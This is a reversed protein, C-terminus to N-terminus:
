IGNEANQSPAGQLQRHIFEEIDELRFRLIPGLKIVPIRPHRRTAHDRVWRESVGLRQAVDKATLLHQEPFVPLFPHKRSSHDWVGNKTVNLRTAVDEATLVPDISGDNSHGPKHLDELPLSATAASVRGGTSQQVLQLKSSAPLNSM